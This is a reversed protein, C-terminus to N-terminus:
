EASIAELLSIVMRHTLGWLRHEGLQLFPLELPKGEHVYMFTSAGEGRALPGLPVWLTDAVEHNPFLRPAAERLAFVYPAITLGVPVGRVIAPLEELSGVHEACAALDLGVEEYTERIATQLTSADAAASRGGPFAVHGSWPDGPRDSRKIFLLRADAAAEGPALVLAVSARPGQDGSRPAAALARLRGAVSALDLRPTVICPKRERRAKRL